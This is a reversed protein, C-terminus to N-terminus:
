VEFYLGQVRKFFVLRFKEAIGFGIEKVQKVSALNL